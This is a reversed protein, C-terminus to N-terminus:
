VLLVLRLQLVKMLSLNSRSDSLDPHVDKIRLLGQGPIFIPPASSVCPQWSSKPLKQQGAGVVCIAM